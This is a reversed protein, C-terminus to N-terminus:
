QPSPHPNERKRQGAKAPPAVGASNESRAAAAAFLPPASAEGNVGGAAHWPKGEALHVLFDQAAFRKGNLKGPLQPARTYTGDGNLIRSKATDSLYSLLIEEYIRRRLEPDHLPFMVEVREYLNRPMWDASGLYIEPEGANEFYYIRSHELFRGVISRVRIRHSLGRVGPRLACGGRVILDIEVGAQSARYLAQIIGPDLLANVKAIIRAPRNRRANATERDILETCNAALDTPALLLPR